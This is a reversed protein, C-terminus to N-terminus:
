KENVDSLDPLEYKHHLEEVFHNINIDYSFDFLFKELRTILDENNSNVCQNKCHPHYTEM